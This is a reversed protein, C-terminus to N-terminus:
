IFSAIFESHAHLIDTVFRGPYDTVSGAFSNILSTVGSSHWATMQDDGYCYSPQMLNYFSLLATDTVAAADNVYRRDGNEAVFDAISGLDVHHTVPSSQLLASFSGSMDGDSDAAHQSSSTTSPSYCLM